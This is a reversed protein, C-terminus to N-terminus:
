RSHWPRPARRLMVTCCAPHHLAEGPEHRAMAAPAAPPLPMAMWAHCRVLACCVSGCVKYITYASYVNVKPKDADAWYPDAPDAAAAATTLPRHRPAALRPLLAAAPRLPPALAAQRAGQLATGALLAKTLAQAM